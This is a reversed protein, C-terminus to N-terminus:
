TMYVIKLFNHASVYIYKIPFKNIYVLIATLSPPCLHIIIINYLPWFLYIYQRWVLKNSHIFKRFIVSKLKRSRIILWHGIWITNRNFSKQSTCIINNFQDIKKWPLYDAFYYISNSMKEIIWMFLYISSCQNLIEM